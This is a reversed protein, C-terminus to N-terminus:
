RANGVLVSRLSVVNEVSADKMPLHQHREPDDAYAQFQQDSPFSVLHLEYPRGLESHLVSENGPRIRLLLRGGHRELLPLVRDEYLHFTEEKGPKVYILQTFHVM